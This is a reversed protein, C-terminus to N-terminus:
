RELGLQDCIREYVLFDDNWDSILIGMRQGDKNKFILDVSGELNDYPDVSWECDYPAQGIAFLAVSLNHKLADHKRNKYERRVYEIAKYCPIRQQTPSSEPMSALKMVVEGTRANIMKCDTIKSIEINDLKFM